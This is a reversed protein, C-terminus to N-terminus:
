KSPGKSMMFFRHYPNYPNVFNRFCRLGAKSIDQLIRQHSYNRKGIEWHHEGDFHHLPSYPMMPWAIRIKRVGPITLNVSANGFHPLSVIVFDRSVRGMEALIDVFNAYPLHELVQFATVCDYSANKFPSHLASGCVSPNLRADIDLGDVIYGLHRAIQRFIGNGVGIELVSKVRLEGIISLQYYYSTFREPSEYREMEYHTADVQKM